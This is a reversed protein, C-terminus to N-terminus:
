GSLEEDEDNVHDQAPRYSRSGSDGV